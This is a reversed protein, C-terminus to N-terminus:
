RVSLMSSVRQRSGDITLVGRVLYSGESVPRGRSDVLNWRGIERRDGTSSRDSVSVTNILNGNADFISLTGSVDSGGLLFFAVSGSSKAVPNPGASFEATTPLNPVVVVVEESGGPIVRDTENVNVARSYVTVTVAASAFETNGDPTRVRVEYDGAALGTVTQGTVHAWTGGAIRWEMAATVGNIV